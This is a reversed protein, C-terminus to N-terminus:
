TFTIIYVTLLGEAWGAVKTLVWFHSKASGALSPMCAPQWGGAAIHFEEAQEQRQSVQLAGLTSSSADTIGPPRTLMQQLRDLSTDTQAPSAHMCLLLCARKGLVRFWFSKRHM